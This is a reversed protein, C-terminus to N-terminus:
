LENTFKEEQNQGSYSTRYQEVSLTYGLKWYIM